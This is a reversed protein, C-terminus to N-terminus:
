SRRALTRRSGWGSASPFRPGVTGQRAVQEASEAIGLSVAAHFLGALLNREMYPLPDGARFGGRVGSEPQEVGELSISHSGSARMPRSGLFESVEAIFTQWAPEHELLLHNRSDLPILRASPVAAADIVTELDLVWRELSLDGADRDSLGCGRFDYRIVTNTRGLEELWRRWVPSGWDFELHTLWNSAKVLPPGGGHKAYALRVGDSAVCFRIEQKL